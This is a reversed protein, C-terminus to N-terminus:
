GPRIHYSHLSQYCVVVQPITDKSMWPVRGDGYERDGGYQLM